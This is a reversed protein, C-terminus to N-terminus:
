ISDMYGDNDDEAKKEEPANGTPFAIDDMAVDGSTVYKSRLESETNEQMEKARELDRQYHMAFDMEGGTLSGMYERHESPLGQKERIADSVYEGVSQAIDVITDFWFLDGSGRRYRRSM